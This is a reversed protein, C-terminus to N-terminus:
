GDDGLFQGERVDMEVPCESSPHETVKCRRRDTVLPCMLTVLQQSVDSGDQIQRLKTGGRTRTSSDGVEGIQAYGKLEYPM